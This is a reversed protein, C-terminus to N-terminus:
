FELQPKERKESPGGRKKKKKSHLSFRHETSKWTFLSLPPTPVVGDERERSKAAGLWRLPCYMGTDTEGGVWLVACIQM